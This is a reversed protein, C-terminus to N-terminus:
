GAPSAEFRKFSSYYYLASCFPIFEPFSSIVSNSIDTVIYDVLLTNCKNNTMRNMM